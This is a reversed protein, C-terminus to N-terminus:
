IKYKESFLFDNKIIMLSFRGITLLIIKTKTAQIRAGKQKTIRVETNALTNKFNEEESSM